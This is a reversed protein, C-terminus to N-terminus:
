VCPGPPRMGRLELQVEADAGRQLHVQHRAVQTIAVDDNGLSQVGIEAYAIHAGDAHQSQISGIVEVFYVPAAPLLVTRDREAALGVADIEGGGCLADDIVGAQLAANDDGLVAAARGHYPIGPCFLGCFEAIEAVVPMQAHHAHFAGFGCIIRHHYRRPALMTQTHAVRYLRASRPAARCLQRAPSSACRPRRCKETALISTLQPNRRPLLWRKWRPCCLSKNVREQM